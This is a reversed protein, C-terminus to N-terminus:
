KTTSQVETNKQPFVIITKREYIAETSSQAIRHKETLFVMITKRVFFQKQPVRHLETNKQPFCLLQKERASNRLIRLFVASKGCIEVVKAIRRIFNGWFHFVNSIEANNGM